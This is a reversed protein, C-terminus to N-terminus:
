DLNVGLYGKILNIWSELAKTNHEDLRFKLNQSDQSNTEEEHVFKSFKSIFDETDSFFTVSYGQFEDLLEPIDRSFVKIGLSLAELIVLPKGEYNSTIVLIDRKSVYSWPNNQFGLFELNQNRDKSIKELDERLRGDGIILGKTKLKFQIDLFLHPCKQEELRGLFLLRQESENKYKASGLEQQPILNELILSPTQSSKWVKIKPSVTVFSSGLFKLWIRIAAGLTRRGAWPHSSHEVVITKYKGWLLSTYFEPLDCNVILVDPAFRKLEKRFKYFSTLTQGLKSLHKRGIEIENELAEPHVGQQCSNIGILISQFDKENLNQNLSAMANEAGGGRLSNVIIAVRLKM